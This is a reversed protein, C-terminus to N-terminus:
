HCDRGEKWGIGGDALFFLEAKCKIIHGRVRDMNAQVPQLLPVNLEYRGDVKKVAGAYFLVCATERTDDGTYKSCVEQAVALGQSSQIVEKTPVAAHAFSSFYFPAALILSIIKKM